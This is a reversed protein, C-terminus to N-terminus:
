GLNALSVVTSGIVLAPVLVAAFWCSWGRPELSQAESM